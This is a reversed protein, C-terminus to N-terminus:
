SANGRFFGSVLLFAVTGIGFLCWGILMGSRVVGVVGMEFALAGAVLLGIAGMQRLTLRDRLFLLFCLEECGEGM